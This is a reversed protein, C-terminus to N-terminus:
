STKSPQTQPTAPPVTATKGKMMWLAVGVILLVVGLGIGIEGTTRHFKVAYMAAGIIIALIGLVTVWIGAKM